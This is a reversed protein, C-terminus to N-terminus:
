ADRAGLHQAVFAVRAAFGELCALAADVVEEVPKEDRREDEQAPRWEAELALAHLQEEADGIAKALSTLM